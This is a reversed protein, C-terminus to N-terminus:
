CQAPDPYATVMASEHEPKSVVREALVAAKWPDVLHLETRKRVARLVLCKSCATM